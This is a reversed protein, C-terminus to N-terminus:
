GRHLEDPETAAGPKASFYIAQGGPDPFETLTVTRGGGAAVECATGNPRLSEDPALRASAADVVLQRPDDTFGSREPNLCYLLPGRMVAVRGAQTQRGRILRWPMAFGIEVRDGPKWTRRVTAFGPGSVPVSKGNVALRAGRSWRPIRLSLAFEAPRDPDVRLTVDGSTPYRTEQRIRVNAGAKWEVLAESEGYLNVTIGGGAQRYYIFEPIEAIIRRLNNPCCMYDQPYYPRPGEFPTWYRLKRGDPSIAAFLSNYIAREMMDGYLSDGHMRELADLVRVQYATACSETNEGKPATGTQDSSWCEIKDGSGTVLLGDRKLMFDMAKGTQSLLKRDGNLHYLELQALCRTLYAYKHGYYPSKRGEVIDLNWTELGVDKLVDRYREDGTARYLTLMSRDFGTIIMPMHIEKDDIAGPMKGAIRSVLFDAARRAAKLSEAERFLRYDTTLGYVIYNLEHVDWAKRVRNEPKVFGIYGDPEQARLIEKVVHRKLSLLEPNGTHFAFRALADTFTGLGIFGGTIKGQYTRDFFPALFDRDVDLKLINGRWVAAMREGLMGGVKVRNAPIPLLPDSVTDARLLSAPIASIAGGAFLLSRRTPM